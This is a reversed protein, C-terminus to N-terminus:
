ARLNDYKLIIREIIHSGVIKRSKPEQPNQILLDFEMTIVINLLPCNGARFEIHKPLDTFIFITRVSGSGYQPSLSNVRVKTVKTNVNTIKVPFEPLITIM